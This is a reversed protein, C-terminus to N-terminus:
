GNLRLGIPGRWKTTDKLGPEMVVAVVKQVGKRQVAYSFEAHCNDEAGCDACKRIYESTIFVVFVSSADTECMCLSVCLRSCEQM